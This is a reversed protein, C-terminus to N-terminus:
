IAPRIYRMQVRNGPPHVHVETMYARMLLLGRGAPIEINEQETPDPVTSPDFGAGQDQIDIDVAQADVRCNLQVTKQPDEKNGHKFANTLAEEVALRIAFCSAPDYQQREIAALLAGQAKEIDERRYHLM